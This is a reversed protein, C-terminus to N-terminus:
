LDELEKKYIDIHKKIVCKIDKCISQNFDVQKIDPAKYWSTIGYQKAYLLCFELYEIINKLEIARELTEKNM